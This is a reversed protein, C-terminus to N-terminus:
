VSRAGCCHVTTCCWVEFLSPVDAFWVAACAGVKSGPYWAFRQYSRDLLARVAAVFAGRQPWDAATVLVETGNCNHGSNLWLGSVAAAAQYELERQSWPKASPVIIYPTVCGLEATFPKSVQRQGGAPGGPGWVIANYTATSGTMHLHTVRADHIIAQAM